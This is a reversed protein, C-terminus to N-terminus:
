KREQKITDAGHNKGMPYSRWWFRRSDDVVHLFHPLLLSNVGALRNGM